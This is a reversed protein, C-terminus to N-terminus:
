PDTSVKVAIINGKEDVAITDTFTGGVDIAIM